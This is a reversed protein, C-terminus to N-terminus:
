DEDEGAETGEPALTMYSGCNGCRKFTKEIPEAPYDYAENGCQHCIFLRKFLGTFM